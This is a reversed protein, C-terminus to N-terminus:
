PCVDGVALQGVGNLLKIRRAEFRWSGIDSLRSSLM